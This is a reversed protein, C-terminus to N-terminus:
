DHKICYLLTINVPRNEPATPVVRSADFDLNSPWSGAITRENAPGQIQFAGSAGFFGTGSDIFGTINRIADNQSSGLARTPGDPDKAGTPDYGRVFLGRMDPTTTKGLLAYLQPYDTANFSAGNCPLYGDPAATGYYMIVAGV